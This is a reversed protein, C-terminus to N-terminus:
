VNINVCQECHRDNMVPVAGVQISKETDVVECETREEAFDL